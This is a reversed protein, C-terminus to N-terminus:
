FSKLLALIATKLGLTNIAAPLLSTATENNRSLTLVMKGSKKERLECVFFSPAATSYDRSFHRKLVEGLRHPCCSFDELHSQYLFFMRSKDNFLTHITCASLASLSLSSSFLASQQLLYVLKHNVSIHWLLIMLQLLKNITSRAAKHRRSPPAPM